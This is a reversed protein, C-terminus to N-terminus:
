APLSAVMLNRAIGLIFMGLIFPVTLSDVGYGICAKTGDADRSQPIAPSTATARTGAGQHSLFEGVRETSKCRVDTRTM